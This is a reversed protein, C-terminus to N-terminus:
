HLEHMAYEFAHISLNDFMCKKGHIYIFINVPSEPPYKPNEPPNGLPGHNGGESAYTEQQFLFSSAILVSM